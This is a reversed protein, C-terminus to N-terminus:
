SCSAYLVIFKQSPVFMLHAIRRLLNIISKTLSVLRMPVYLKEMRCSHMAALLITRNVMAKLLQTVQNEM